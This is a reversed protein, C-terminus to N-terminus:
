SLSYQRGREDESHSDLWIQEYFPHRNILDERWPNGESCSPCGYGGKLLAFPSLPFECLCSTCRFILNTHMEEKGLNGTFPPSILQLGRFSAADKIVSYTINNYDEDWGHNLRKAKEPNKLEDYNLYEGTDPNQNNSLLPFSDWDKSIKLAKEKSGFYANIRGTDDDKLWRQPANEDNLLRSFLLKKIFFSPVFRGLGIIPNEHSARKFFDNFSECRFHFMNELTDSDLFWFCHFNRSAHWSPSLFKKADGGMLSFGTQFTEFGTVRSNKGGGLSYIGGWFENATGCLDSKIINIMLASSEIDTTWEIPVNLPTHFMLGDSINSMLINSYLMGTQRIIAWKKLGSLTVYREGKIKDSGYCDYPSVMLPDGVRGFPHKYNRNGYIAVTSIHILASDPAFEKIADVVNIAGERNVKRSVVPNKDSHPPIVAAANIVYSSGNVTKEVDSKNYINGVIVEIRDSYKKKLEKVKKQTASRTLIRITINKDIDLIGGISKIMMNGTAGFIAIVM